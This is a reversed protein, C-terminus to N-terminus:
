RNRRHKSDSDPKRTRRIYWGMALAGTGCLIYTSPEPVAAITLGQMLLLQGGEIYESGNPYHAQVDFLFSGPGFIDSVDIIGSSEEDATFPGTPNIISGGDTTGFRAPDHRAVLNLGGTAINYAWIKAGWNANGPDEQLIVLGDRSVTMNDFMQHPGTGDLLMELNGGNEPNAIDTFTMRWLRSRGVQGAPAQTTLPDKVTDFRDTTVFYFQSPNNPNWAGDEPRLFRTVNNATSSTELAAGTISTVDGHNFMTFAKSPAGVGTTRDESAAGAVQVGYLNGNTLGAREVDNGTNTKNGVYVYVQGPTTDDTGVVITKQQSLPNAVANEWSFKGLRPLEYSTGKSAGSAIHAFVRGEAGVEEGSMFIRANTGLSGFAYATPAALDGSCLRGFAASSGATAINVTKVLDEGNVVAKSAINVNYNSVFSGVQGHDRVVGATAGLEHNMFISVTGDGNDYAGLGDPIGAMGRYAGGGPRNVVDGTTLMSTTTVGSITPLVYPTQSSTPGQIQAHAASGTCLASLVALALLRKAQNGIM